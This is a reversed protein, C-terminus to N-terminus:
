KHIVYIEGPILTTYEEILIYKHIHTHECLRVQSYRLNRKTYTNTDYVLKSHTQTHSHAYTKVQLYQLNRKTITDYVGRSHTQRHSHSCVTKSTFLM